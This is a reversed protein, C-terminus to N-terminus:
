AEIVVPIVVPRRRHSRYAWNQVERAIVQELKEFNTANIQDLASYRTSWADGGWYRWEGPKNGRVLASQGAPGTQYAALAGGLTVAAVVIGVKRSIRFRKTM